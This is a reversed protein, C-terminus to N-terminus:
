IVNAGEYAFAPPLERGFAYLANGAMGLVSALLMARVGRVQESAVSLLILFTLFCLLAAILFIQQTALMAHRRVLRRLHILSEGIIFPTMAPPLFQLWSARYATAEKCQCRCM